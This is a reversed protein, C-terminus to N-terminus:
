YIDCSNGYIADNLHILYVGPYKSYCVRVSMVKSKQKDRAISDENDVVYTHVLVVSHVDKDLGGSPCISSSFTVIFMEIVSIHKRDDHSWLSDIQGVSNGCVFVEVIGANFYTKLYKIKLIVKKSDMLSNKMPFSISVNQHKTDTLEWEHIWGVRRRGEEVLHFSSNDRQDPSYPSTFFNDINEINEFHSSNIKMSEQQLAWINDAEVGFPETLANDCEHRSNEATKNLIDKVLEPYASWSHTSQHSNRCKEMELLLISAFTDAYFLHTTWGPHVGNLVVSNYSFNLYSQFEGLSSLYEEMKFMKLSDTISWIPLHFIEAVVTYHAMEFHHDHGLPFQNTELIIITPISTCLQLIKRTIAGLGNTVAGADNVSYDYLILDHATFVIDSLFVEIDLARNFSTQGRSSWDHYNVTATGHRSLFRSLQFGWSCYKGDVFEPSGGYGCNDLFTLNKNCKLDLKEDCCCGGAMVGDTM